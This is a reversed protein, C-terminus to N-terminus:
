RGAPPSASAAPASNRFLKLANEVTYTLGWLAPLVVVGWALALAASSSRKIKDEPM